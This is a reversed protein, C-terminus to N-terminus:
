FGLKRSIVIALIAVVLAVIGYWFFKEIFSERGANNTKNGRVNDGRGFHFLSDYINGGIREEAEPLKKQKQSSVEKKILGVVTKYFSKRSIKNSHFFGKDKDKLSSQLNALSLSDNKVLELGRESVLDTFELLNKVGKKLLAERLLYCLRAKNLM